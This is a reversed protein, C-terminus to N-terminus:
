ILNPADNIEFKRWSNGDSKPSFPRHMPDHSVGSDREFKAHYNRPVPREDIRCLEHTKAVVIRSCIHIKDHLRDPLEYGSSRNQFFWSLFRGSPHPACSRTEIASLVIHFGITGRKQRCRTSHIFIETASSCGAAICWPSPLEDYVLARGIQKIIKTIALIINIYPALYPFFLLVSVGVCSLSFIFFSSLFAIM